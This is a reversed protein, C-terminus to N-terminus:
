PRIPAGSPPLGDMSALSDLAAMSPRTDVPKNRMPAALSLIFRAICEM